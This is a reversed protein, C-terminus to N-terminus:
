SRSRSPRRSSRRCARHSRARPHDAAAPEVRRGHRRRRVRDHRRGGGRPLAGGALRPRGRRPVAGEVQAAQDAGGRGDRAADHPALLPDDAGADDHVPSRVDPGARKWASFGGALSKVNTYGLEELSRAALASRTGGACYLVIESSKEPVQDEIRQELFGRPIWRAGPISVRRGVRGERPRRDPDARAGNGDGSKGKAAEVAKRVSEVDTERIQAKVDKLVKGFSM